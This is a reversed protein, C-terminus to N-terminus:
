DTIANDSTCWPGPYARKPYVRLWYPDPRFAQVRVRGWTSAGDNASQLYALLAWADPTFRRRLPHRSEDLAQGERDLGRLLGTSVGLRALIVGVLCAPKGHDIFRPTLGNDPRRDIHDPREAAVADLIQRIEAVTYVTRPM